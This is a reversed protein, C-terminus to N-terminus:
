TSYSSSEIHYVEIWGVVNKMLFFTISSAACNDAEIFPQIFNNPIFIILFQVQDGCSLLQHWGQIFIFPQVWPIVLTKSIDMQSLYSFFNTTTASQIREILGHSNSLTYWNKHNIRLNDYIIMALLNMGFLYGWCPQSNNIDIKQKAFSIYQDVNFVNGGIEMFWWIIRRIRKLRSNKM